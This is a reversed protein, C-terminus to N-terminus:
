NYGTLVAFCLAAISLVLMLAQIPATWRFWKPYSVVSVGLAIMLLPNTPYLLNTFGDGFCFASVAVQSSLGVLEALPAIMPMLLFAKASGSGVFFNLLLVVLYIMVAAGYPGMDSISGSVYYLITDMIKGNTIILKVSMAMLILVASPAIGGVGCLFDKIINGGYGSVAGGILGGVLFLLAMVVMSLSSLSPIFFGAIIYVIVLAISIGFIVVTRALEKENPLAELSETDFYKKRGESDEKYVYSLAPDKEIRKAYRYLFLFLVGYCVALFIVRFLLGSFAPLGVLSQAIGLTFPNMTAASFGFGAALASMGLGTLSDWGLAYSLVIVIPVLAVLEEFIGFFSGFLMFFMILIAMLKYKHKSFHRVLLSMIYRLMGCKDLVTFVGGIIFIFLIISIVMVADSSALVEFPATFWRWVPYGGENTFEFTDPVISMNSDNEIRQYTGTPVAYTLVGAVMMLALLIIVSSVFAKASIKISTNSNSGSGSDSRSIKKM